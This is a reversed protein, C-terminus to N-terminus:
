RAAYIREIMWFVGVVGIVASALRTAPASATARVSTIIALIASACAIVALQGLEVGANFSVLTTLFGAASLHLGALAEAFGMGHLLGFAFVVALRWPHLRSTMLNEVGVYAVSLAIMPEVISPPASVLGYLCLGLTVSHAVTFATVQLFVERPRRSLLFLGVVFLIHDIGAPVIHTFGMGLGRMFNLPRSTADIPMPASTEPGQLWQVVEQGDASRMALPYSGFVFTSRWTVGSAGPPMPAHLGIAAQRTGDVEISDLAPIVPTGDVRVEIHSILTPMLDRLRTRGDDATTAKTAASGALAELKAILADADAAISITLRDRTELSISVTTTALPHAEARIGVIAVLALLTLTSRFQRIM